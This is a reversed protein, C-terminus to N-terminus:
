AKSGDCWVQLVRPSYIGLTIFTLFGDLFYEKTQIQQIKKGECIARGDITHSGVVGLLFFPLRETHNPATSLRATGKATMTVTSCATALLLTLTLCITKM